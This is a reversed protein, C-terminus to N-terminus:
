HKSLMGPYRCRRNERAAYVKEVQYLTGLNNDVELEDVFDHLDCVFRWESDSCEMCLTDMVITNDLGNAYLYLSEIVQKVRQRNM